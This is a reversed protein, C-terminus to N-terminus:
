RCLRAHSYQLRVGTDGTFQLMREWSFKYHRRRSQKMDQVFIASMSLKDAITELDEQVKTAAFRWNLTMNFTSSRKM